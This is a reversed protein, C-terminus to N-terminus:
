DTEKTDTDAGAAPADAAPADTDTEGGATPAEDTPAEDTRREIDVDAMAEDAIEDAVAEAAGEAAAEAAVEAAAETEAQAAAQAAEEAERVDIARQRQPSIAAPASETLPAIPTGAVVALERERLLTRLRAINRRARRITTADQLQHTGKQFQLNFLERYAENIADALAADTLQRAEDAVPNAM